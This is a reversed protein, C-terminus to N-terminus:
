KRVKRASARRMHEPINGYILSGPIACQKWVRAATAESTGFASACVGAASYSYRGAKKDQTMTRLTKPNVCAVWGTAVLCHMVEAIARDRVLTKLGRRRPRCLRGSDKDIVWYALVDPITDERDRLERAIRLLWDWAVVSFASAWVSVKLAKQKDNSSLGMFDQINQQTGYSRYIRDRTDTAFEVARAFEDQGHM